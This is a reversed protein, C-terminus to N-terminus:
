SQGLSLHGQETRSWRIADKLSVPANPTADLIKHLRDDDTTKIPQKENQNQIATTPATPVTSFRCNTKGRNGYGM